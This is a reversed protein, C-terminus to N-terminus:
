INDTGSFLLERRIHVRQEETHQPCKLSKTCMRGTKLSIVCCKQHFLFSSDCPFDFSMLHNSFCVTALLKELTSRPNKKLSEILAQIQSQRSRSDRSTQTNKKPKTKQLNKEALHFSREFL